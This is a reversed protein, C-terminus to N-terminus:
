GRRRRKLGARRGTAASWAPGVLGDGRCALGDRELARCLEDIYDAEVGLRRALTRSTRPGTTSCPGCSGRGTGAARAKSPAKAPGRRSARPVRRSCWPATTWSRTTGTAAAGGRCSSTPSPRCRPRRSTQRCTSSTRCCAACTRTSPPSTPTARSCWSPAHRTPVSAPSPVSSRSRIPSHRTGAAGPRPRCGRRAAGCVSPATTTAWGAGSACSTPSRPQRRAGRPHPLRAPVGRVPVRRTLGPDAAAHGRQRARRVPRDDAALAPRTRQGRVM